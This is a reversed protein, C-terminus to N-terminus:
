PGRSYYKRVLVEPSAGFFYLLRLWWMLLVTSLIGREEWRRSSTTVPQRIRRPWAVARLQKSLAVDEMLPISPYGGVRQFVRRAVFVAQDGTAVGTLHSRWNVCAAIVRFVIRRGSLRLDFRGWVSGEAQLVQVICDIANDPLRTDAHLFLLVEGDALEAGRNMQRARGRECVTFVDCLGKSVSEVGDDSGGDVVVIQHGGQRYIQLSNLQELLQKSDNIVPIIISVKM